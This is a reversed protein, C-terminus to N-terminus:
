QRTPHYRTDVIESANLKKDIDKENFLFDFTEQIVAVNPLADPERYYDKTTFLYPLVMEKSIKTVKATSEIAETRNQSIFRRAIVYDELFAKVAAPNEKIFKTRFAFALIEQRPLVDRYSFLDVLELKAHALHYFPQPFIGVDVQGKELTQAMLPFAVEVIKVDTAPDLRSKKLFSRLILDASSGYSRVAIIKGKLDKASTIGSKKLAAWTTTFYGPREGMVQAVIKVDLGGKAIGRAWSVFDTTGGDVREAMMAKIIEPGGGRFFFWEVDYAKGYNRLIDPRDMMLYLVDDAVSTWNVRIKVAGSSSLPNILFGGIALALVFVMSYRQAKKFTM